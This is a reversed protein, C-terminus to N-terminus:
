GKLSGIMVGKKFYKQVIAYLVLVPVTSVIILAYKIQETGSELQVLQDASLSNTDITQAATLITRLVLQLPYKTEDNLYIMANFYANWEGVATYLLIVSLTAKILPLAIKWLVQFESCGDITAADYLEGPVSTKFATRLIFCHSIGLAGPLIVAWINDYLGLNYRTIFTPILGAGTLMAILFLTTCLRRGQYKPRALPYAALTTVFLKIATGLVTYIVTNRYGVWVKEYQFVFDYGALTFDKPWLFVRGTMIANSSSFSCAVVYLVPYGVLILILTLITATVGQLVRDGRSDKIKNRVKQVKVESM